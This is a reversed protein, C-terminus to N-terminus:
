EEMEAIVQVVNEYIKNSIDEVEGEASIFIWGEEQAFDRYLTTASRIFQINSEYVDLTDYNGCRKLYETESIDLYVVIDPQVLSHHIDMLWEENIGSNIGYVFGSHIYRDCIVIKGMMLAQEIRPQQEYRNIAFLSQLEYPNDSATLPHTDELIAEIAQGSPSDYDPFHIVVVDEGDLIFRKALEEVQSSKGSKDIGEFSVLLGHEM